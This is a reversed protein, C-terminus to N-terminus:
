SYHILVERLATGAAVTHTEVAQQQWDSYRDVDEEVDPAPHPDFEKSVVLRNFFRCTNLVTLNHTLLRVHM